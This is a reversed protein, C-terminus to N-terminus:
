LLPVCRDGLENWVYSPKQLVSARDEMMEVERQFLPINLSFDQRWRLSCIPLAGSECLLQDFPVPLLYSICFSVHFLLSPLPCTIKVVGTKPSTKSWRRESRSEQVDSVGRQDLKNFLKKKLLILSGLGLFTESSSCVFFKQWWKIEGLMENHFNDFM